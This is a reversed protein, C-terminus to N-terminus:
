EGGGKGDVDDDSDDDGEDELATFPLPPQSWSADGGFGRRKAAKRADRHLWFLWERLKDIEAFPYQEWPKNHFELSRRLEKEVAGRAQAITDKTGFKRLMAIDNMKGLAWSLTRPVEVLAGSVMTRMQQQLIGVQRSLLAAGQSQQALSTELARNHDLARANSAELAQIRELAKALQDSSMGSTFGGTAAIEPMVKESMFRRLTKGAQKKTLLLAKWIGPEYILMLNQVKSMNTFPNKGNVSAEAVLKKFEALDEGRLVDYDFGETFEDSWEARIQNALDLGRAYRLAEGLQVGIVAARGRYRVFTLPTDKGGGDWSWTKLVEALM